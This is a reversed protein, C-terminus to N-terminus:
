LPCSDSKTDAVYQQIFGAIFKLQIAKGFPHFCKTEEFCGDDDQIRITQASQLETEVNETIM